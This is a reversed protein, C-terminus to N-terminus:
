GPLGAAALMWDLLWDAYSPRVFVRTADSREQLIVPVRALLTQACMGYYWSRPHLDLGCGTSLLEHRDESTLELVTRNASVDVVSHHTGSLLTTLEAALGAPETTETGDLVLWEDPGLWLVDRGVWAVWTNPELPLFPPLPDAESRAVRVDVQALFPVEGAGLRQLDGARGDLASRAADATV